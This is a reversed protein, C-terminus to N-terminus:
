MKSIVVDDYKIELRELAAFFHALSLLYRDSRVAIDERITPTVNSYFYHGSGANVETLRPSGNREIFFAGATLVPEGPFLFAHNARLVEKGAEEEIRRVEERPLERGFRIKGSLGVAFFYEGTALTDFGEATLTQLVRLDGGRDFFEQYEHQLLPAEKNPYAVAPPNAIWAALLSDSPTFEEVGQVFDTNIERHAHLFDKYNQYGEIIYPPRPPYFELWALSDPLLGEFVSSDKPVWPMAEDLGEVYARVNPTCGALDTLGYKTVANQYFDQWILYRTRHITAVYVGVTDNGIELMYGFNGIAWNSKDNVQKKPGKEIAACARSYADLDACVVRYSYPKGIHDHTLPGTALVGEIGELLSDLYPIVPPRHAAVLKEFEEGTIPETPWHHQGLVAQTSLVCFLLVLLLRYRIKM